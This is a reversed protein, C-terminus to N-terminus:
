GLDLDEPQFMCPDPEPGFTESEIHMHIQIQILVWIERPDSFLNWIWKIQFQRIQINPYDSVRKYDSTWHLGSDPQNCGSPPVTTHMDVNQVGIAM